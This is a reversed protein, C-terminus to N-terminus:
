ERENLIKRAAVKIARQPDEAALKKLAAEIPPSDVDRIAELTSAIVRDQTVRSLTENTAGDGDDTPLTALVERNLLVDAVFSAGGENGLRALAVAANWKVERTTVEVDTMVAQLAEIVQTDGADALAGLGAAAEARVEPASDKLRGLLVPLISEAPQHESLALLGRVVHQRVLTHDSDAREAITELAEPQGLRGLAVLLYAILEKEDDGINENLIETLEGALKARREPDKIQPLQHAINAAALSRDKYRPDQMGGAMRGAGSSQRLRLLQNELNSPQTAVLGFIIAATICAITIVAPIVVLQAMQRGFSPPPPLAEEDGEAPDGPM